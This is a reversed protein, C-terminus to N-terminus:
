QTMQKLDAAADTYSDLARRYNRRGNPGMIEDAANDMRREARDRRAQAEAIQRKRKRAYARARALERERQLEELSLKRVCERQGGVEIFGSKPGDCRVAWFAHSPTTILLVTAAIFISKM